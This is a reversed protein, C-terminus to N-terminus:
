TYYKWCKKLITYLIYDFQDFMRCNAAIKIVYIGMVTIYTYHININLSTLTMNSLYTKFGKIM